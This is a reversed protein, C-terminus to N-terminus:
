VANYCSYKRINTSFIGSKLDDVTFGKILYAVAVNESANIKYSCYCPINIMDELTLEDVSRILEVYFHYHPCKDISRSHKIFAYKKVNHTKVFAKMADIDSKDYLVFHWKKSRTYGFIM